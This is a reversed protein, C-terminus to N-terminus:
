SSSTTARTVTAAMRLAATRSRERSAVPASDGPILRSRSRANAGDGVKGTGQCAERIVGPVVLRAAPAAHSLPASGRGGVRRRGDVTVARDRYPNGPRLCHHDRPLLQRHRVRPDLALRPSAAEIAARIAIAMVHPDFDPRFQGATQFRSLVLSRGLWRGRVVPLSIGAAAVAADRAADIYEPEIGDMLHYFVDRTVEYGVHTIFFGAIPDGQPFGLWVAVLGLLAGFSSIADLWSHKADALLTTSHIRTGVRRKYFAVAQNGVIGVVAGLMGWGLHDPPATLSWSTTARSVPPCPVPGSSSRLGIVWGGLSPTWALLSGLQCRDASVADLLTAASPSYGGISTSLMKTHSPAPGENDVHEDGRGDADGEEVQARVPKKFSDDRGHEQDPGSQGDAFRALGLFSSDSM